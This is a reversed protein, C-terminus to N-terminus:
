KKEGDDFHCIIQIDSVENENEATCEKDMQFNCGQNIIRMWSNKTQFISHVWGDFRFVVPAAATVLAQPLPYKMEYNNDPIKTDAGVNILVGYKGQYGTTVMCYGPQVIWPHGQKNYDIKDTGPIVMTIGSWAHIVAGIPGLKNDDAFAVWSIFLLILAICSNTKM